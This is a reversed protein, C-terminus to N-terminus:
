GAWRGASLGSRRGWPRSGRGGAGSTPCPQAAFIMPILDSCVRLSEAVWQLFAAYLLLLPGVLTDADREAVGFRDEMTAACAPRAGPDHLDIAGLCAVCSAFSRDIAKHRPM